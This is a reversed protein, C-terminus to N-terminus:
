KKAPITTAPIAAPVVKPEETPNWEMKNDWGAKIPVSNSFTVIKEAHRKELLSGTDWKKNGNIDFVAKMQYDGPKLFNFTSVGDKLVYRSDIPVKGDKAFLQLIVPTTTIGKLTLILSGVNDKSPVSVYLQLSDNTNGYSDTIAGPLVTFRYKKKEERKFDVIVKRPSISDPKVAFATIPTIVYNRQMTQTKITFSQDMNFTGRIDTLSHEKITLLYSTAKKLKKVGLFVTRPYAPYRMVTYPLETKSTDGSTIINFGQTNVSDIPNIMYVPILENLHLNETQLAPIVLEDAGSTPLNIKPRSFKLTDINKGNLVVYFRFFKRSLLSKDTIWCFLSNSAVNRETILWSSQTRNDLNLYISDTPILPKAFTILFKNKGSKYKSVAQKEVFYKSVYNKTRSMEHTKYHERKSSDLQYFDDNTTKIANTDVAFCLKIKTNDITKIPTSAEFSLPVSMDIDSQDKISSTLSCVLHGKLKDKHSDYRPKMTDTLWKLTGTSDHKYFHLVIKLSDNNRLSKDILWYLVTDKQPSYEKIIQSDNVVVSLPEIILSDKILPMNFNFSIKEKRERTASALFQTKREEVFSYLKINCPSFITDIKTIITDRCPKEKKPTKTKATPQKKKATDISPCCLTDFRIKYAMQPVFVSDYFAISEKSQNFKMDNNEDKLAYLRYSGKKIHRLDFTGDKATKTIFMPLEKKPASDNLNAYLMVFNDEMPKQLLVDFVTGSIRLSDITSGTSFSFTFSPLINGANNDKISKGFFFSYTTSDKLKNKGFTIILKKGDAVV